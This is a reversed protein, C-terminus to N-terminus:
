ALEPQLPPTTDLFCLPRLLDHGVSVSCSVKQTGHASLKSPSAYPNGSYVLMSHHVHVLACVHLEVAQQLVDRVLTLEDGWTGSLSMETLYDQFDEGLFCGYEAENARVCLCVVACTM